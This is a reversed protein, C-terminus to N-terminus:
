SFPLRFRRAVYYFTMSFVTMVATWACGLAALENLQGNNWLDFLSVAVVSSSPGTLLLILSMARATLLFVFLWCSILAPVLLPAVIRLLIASLSAGSLSAAEELEPHIQIVGLQAYRIGYPIFAIVSIIVLSAMTGYLPPIVNLYIQLFAFGLVIAPFALPVAALFDIMRHGAVRRAVCWGMVATVSVVVTATIGALMLSNIMTDHYTPSELVLQFNKLTLSSLARISFLQYYPLLATWLLIAVPIVITVIPVLLVFVGAFMRWRGLSVIRPRFGKGTITRYKHAQSSIRGYIKLLIAMLLLLVCAFAAAGGVDPPVSHQLKNYISTTLVTVFGPLGVLAPVEFSEAARVFVLVGLAFLAPKAMGFTIRRVTTPVSAGCVAAAEEYSADANRFVSSLLLFALPAWLMGEVFIMGGLSYVNIYVDTGGFWSRLWTNLPGNKGLFLVWAVIYLVYPVGLSVISSLYLVSRFPADSREALWAQAAGIALAVFASGLSYLIAHLVAGYFDSGAALAAYNKLSFEQYSGDPGVVHLSTWILIVLPPAACLFLLARIQLSVAGVAGYPKTM